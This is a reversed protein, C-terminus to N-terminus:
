DEWSDWAGWVGEKAEPTLDENGDGGNDGGYHINGESQTNMVVTLVATEVIVNPKTYTRKMIPDKQYTKNFM